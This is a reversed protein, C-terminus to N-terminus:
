EQEPRFTERLHAASEEPTTLGQELAAGELAVFLAFIGGATRPTPMGEIIQRTTRAEQPEEPEKPQAPFQNPTNM